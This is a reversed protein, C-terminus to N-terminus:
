YVALLALALAVWWVRSVQEKWWKKGYGPCFGREVALWLPCVSAVVRAGGNVLCEKWAAERPV